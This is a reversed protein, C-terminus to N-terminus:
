KGRFTLKLRRAGPIQAVTNALGAFDEREGMVVTIGAGIDVEHISKVFFPKYHDVEGPVFLAHTRNPRRGERRQMFRSPDFGFRKAGGGSLHTYKDFHSKMLADAEGLKRNSDTLAFSILFIRPDSAVLDSLAGGQENLSFLKQGSGVLAKQEANLGKYSDPRGVPAAAPAEQPSSAAPVAQGDPMPLFGRFVLEFQALGMPTPVYMMQQM